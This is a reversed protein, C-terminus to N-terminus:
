FKMEHPKDGNSLSFRDKLYAKIVADSVNIGADVKAQIAKKEASVEGKIYVGDEGFEAKKAAKTPKFFSDVVEAPLSLRSIDVKTSTAIVFAQNVRKLPM